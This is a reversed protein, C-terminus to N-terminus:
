RKVSFRESRRPQDDLEECPSCCPPRGPLSWWTSCCPVLNRAPRVRWPFRWGSSPCCHPESVPKDNSVDKTNFCRGLAKVSKEFYFVTPIQIGFYHLIWNTSLDSVLHEQKWIDNSYQVVPGNSYRVFPCWRTKKHAPRAKWITPSTCLAYCM